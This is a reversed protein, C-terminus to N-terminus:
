IIEIIPTLKNKYNNNLLKILTSPKKFELFGFCSYSYLKHFALPPVLSTKMSLFIWLVKALLM